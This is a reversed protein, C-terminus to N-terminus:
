QKVGYLVQRNASFACGLRSVPNGVLESDDVRKMRSAGLWHPFACGSLSAVNGVQASYKLKSMWFNM